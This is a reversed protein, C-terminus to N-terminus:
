MKNILRKIIKARANEKKLGRAKAPEDDPVHEPKVPKGPAAPRTKPKTTPLTEPSNPNPTTAPKPQNENLEQKIISRIAERLQKVKM